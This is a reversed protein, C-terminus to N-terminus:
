TRNAQGNECSQNEGRCRVSLQQLAGNFAIDDIRRLGGDHAGFHGDGM